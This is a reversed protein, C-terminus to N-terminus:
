SVRRLLKDANSALAEGRRRIRLLMKDAVRLETPAIIEYEGNKAPAAAKKSPASIFRGARSGAQKKPPKHAIRM